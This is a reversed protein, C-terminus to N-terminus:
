LAPPYAAVYSRLATLEWYYAGAQDLVTALYSKHTYGAAWPQGGTHINVLINAGTSDKIYLNASSGAGHVYHITNIIGWRGEAEVPMSITTNGALNDMYLNVVGAFCGESIAYDGTVTESTYLLGGTGDTGAEGPEGDAGPTGEIVLVRSELSRAWKEWDIHASRLKPDSVYPFTPVKLSM